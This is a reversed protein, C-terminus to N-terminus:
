GPRGCRSRGLRLKHKWFGRHPVGIWGCRILQELAEEIEDRHWGALIRAGGGAAPGNRRIDYSPLGGLLHVAEILTYRRAQRSLFREVEPWGEPVAVASGDCIDCGSCATSEQGILELLLERRCVLNNKAYRAMLERRDGKWPFVSRGADAMDGPM